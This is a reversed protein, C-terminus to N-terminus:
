RIGSKSLYFEQLDKAIHKIDFNHTVIDEYRNTRETGRVAMIQEIWADTDNLAIFRCLDTVCVEHPITASCLTPLGAAQAEIGVIGLGEWISPFLFIDMAQLANYVDQRTGALIFYKELKQKKIEEEVASRLEGQGYWLFRFPFAKEALNKVIDITFFPNKQPSFRGVTGLILENSSFGLARREADRTAPNFVFKEADIANNFVSAINKNSAVKRGYRDELAQYSCGYFHKAVYRTPYSFIKYGFEHWNMPYWTSHSHAITFLGAKNAIHLYIAATSGIHGHVVKIEPHNKFFEKWWRVYSFHNVVRYVPYHYIHGGLSLIEKDYACEHDASVAFDFMVKSRDTNRLLNMVITETGALEMATVVQLVRIPYNM